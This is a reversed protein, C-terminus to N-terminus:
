AEFRYGVGRVTHVWRPRAADAEIKLRIRRVHETVTAADQWEASSRWVARLLDERTYVRRPHGALFALLDFERATLEVPRGGAVVERADLDILLGDFAMRRTRQPAATRRLVCRARAVVERASVPKVLYDDAGLELALVREIEDQKSSMLIAPTDVMSRLWQLVAIGNTGPLDVEIVVLDVPGEGLRRAADRGDASEVADLGHARLATVLPRRVADDPDVVLVRGTPLPIPLEAATSLSV